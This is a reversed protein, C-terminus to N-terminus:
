GGHVSTIFCVEKSDNLTTSLGELARHEVGDILILTMRTPVPSNNEDRFYNVRSGEDMRDHIARVLHFLEGSDPLTFVHKAGGLVERFSGFFRVEVEM